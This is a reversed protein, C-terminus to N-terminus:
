CYVAEDLPYRLNCLQDGVTETDPLGLIIGSLRLKLRLAQMVYEQDDALLIFNTRSNIARLQQILSFGDMGPLLVGTFVIPCPHSAALALAESSTRCLKLKPLVLEQTGLQRLLDALLRCREPQSDIVLMYADDM